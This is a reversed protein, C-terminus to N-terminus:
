AKRNVIPVGDAGTLVQRSSERNREPEIFGLGPIDLPICWLMEFDGLNNDVRFLITGILKVTPMKPLITIKEKIVQSGRHAPDVNSYVLIFYPEPYRSKKEVVQRLTNLLDSTM